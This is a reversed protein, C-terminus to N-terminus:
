NPHFHRRDVLWADTCPDPLHGLAVALLHAVDVEDEDAVLLYQALRHFLGIGAYGKNKETVAHAAEHGASMEDAVGACKVCRDYAAGAVLACSEYVAAMEHAAEDGRELARMVVAIEEIVEGESAIVLVICVSASLKVPEGSVLFRDILVHCVGQAAEDGGAAQESVHHGANFEDGVDFIKLRHILIHGNVEHGAIHVGDAFAALTNLASVIVEFLDAHLVDGHLEVLVSAM